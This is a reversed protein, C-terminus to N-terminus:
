GDRSYCSQNNQTIESFTTEELLVETNVSDLRHSRSIVCKLPRNLPLVSITLHINPEEISQSNSTM